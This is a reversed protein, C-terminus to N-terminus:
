SCSLLKPTMEVPGNVFQKLKGGKSFWDIAGQSVFVSEWTKTTGDTLLQSAVAPMPFVSKRLFLILQRRWTWFKTANPSGNYKSRPFSEIRGELLVGQSVFSPVVRVCLSALFDIEEVGDPRKRMIPGSCLNKNGIFFEPKSGAAISWQVQGNAHASHIVRTYTNSHVKWCLAWNRDEAFVSALWRDLEEPLAYFEMWFGKAIGISGIGSFLRGWRPWHRMRWSRM